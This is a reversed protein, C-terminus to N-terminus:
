AKETLSISENTASNLVFGPFIVHSATSNATITGANSTYAETYTGANGTTGSFTVSIVCNRNGLGTTANYTFAGSSLPGSDVTSSVSSPNDTVSPIAVLDTGIPFNIAPTFSNVTLSTAGIAYGGSNNITVTTPNSGNYGLTMTAGNAIAAPLATVSLTTIPSTGTAATLKTACGNPSIVVHNFISVASGSSNWTNKLMSIAGNDTVVNKCLLRQNVKGTKKNWNKFEWICEHPKAVVELIGELTNPRESEPLKWYDPLAVYDYNPIHPNRYAEKKLKGKYVVTLVNPIHLTSM